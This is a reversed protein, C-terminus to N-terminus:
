RVLRTLARLDAACAATAEAEIRRYVEIVKRGTATLRSGGGHDGGILSAVAPSKLSSNLEDVLVWARRYSMGMAKAAATISATDRIAELLDIKGPGIAVADGSTVRIRFRAVSSPPRRRAASRPPTDKM